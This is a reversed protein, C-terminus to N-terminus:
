YPNVTVRSYVQTTLNINCPSTMVLDKPKLFISSWPSLFLGMGKGKRLGETYSYQELGEIGPFSGQTSTTISIYEGTSGSLRFSSSFSTSFTDYM